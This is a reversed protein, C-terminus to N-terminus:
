LIGWPTILFDLLRIVSSRLVYEREIVTESTKPLKLSDSIGRHESKPRSTLQQKPPTYYSSYGSAQGLELHFDNKYEDVVSGDFIKFNWVYAM